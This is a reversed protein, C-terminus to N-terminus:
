RLDFARPERALYAVVVREGRAPPPDPTVSIIVPHEWLPGDEASFLRYVLGDYSERDPCAIELRCLATVCDIGRLTASRPLGDLLRDQLRGALARDASSATAAELKRELAGTVEAISLDPAPEAFPEPGASTPRPALALELRAVEGRLADVEAALRAVESAGDQPAPARSARQDAQVRDLDARVAAVEVELGDGADRSQWALTALLAIGASGLCVLAAEPIGPKM